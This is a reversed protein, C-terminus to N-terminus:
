DAFKWFVFSQPQGFQGLSPNAPGNLGSGIIGHESIVFLVELAQDRQYIFVDDLTERKRPGQLLLVVLVPFPNLVDEVGPQIHPSM